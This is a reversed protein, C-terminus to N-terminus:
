NNEVLDVITRLALLMKPNHEDGAYRRFGLRNYFKTSEDDLSQLTFAYFGANQSIKYVRDLADVMMMSGLGQRQSKKDVALYALHIAPFATRNKTYDDPKNDVVSTSENGLQLAYYGIARDRNDEHATFVKIEYRSVFKPADNRFWRNM